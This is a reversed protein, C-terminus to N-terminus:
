HRGGTHTRLGREKKRKEDDEDGRASRLEPEEGPAYRSDVVVIQKSKLWGAERRSM